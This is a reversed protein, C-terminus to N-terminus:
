TPRTPPVSGVGNEFWSAANTALSRREKARGFEYPVWRSTQANKTQMSVVHTSNLLAIEIIGAVLVSKLLPSLILANITTLTPDHIDLWYDFHAETAAWAVWEAWHADHRQHSVFLTRYRPAPKSHLQQVLTALRSQLEAQWEFTQPQGALEQVSEVFVTWQDVGEADSATDFRKKLTQWPELVWSDINTEAASSQWDFTPM